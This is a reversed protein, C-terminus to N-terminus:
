PMKEGPGLDAENAGYLVRAPDSLVRGTEQLRDGALRLSQATTQIEQAGLDAALKLQMTMAGIERDIGALTGRAAVLTTETEGALRDIRAQAGRLTATAEDGLGAVKDAAQRTSALTAELEPVTERLDGTLGRLNEVAGTFAQQNRESLLVNLRTLSDRGLQGLEELVNTVKAFQPVGEPIVPYKEGEAIRMLPSAGQEGNVLAIASLGTVLHRVVVATAGELLPTRADVELLVRVKRAEGSMIALDTVKGVKIGQMRVDSNIQMGELSQEQFYVVYRKVSQRDLGGTLWYLGAALLAILTLVAVGVWAYRAEAEM